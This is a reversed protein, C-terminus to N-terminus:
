LRLEVGAWLQDNRGFYGLPTAAGGEYLEAAAWVSWHEGPSYTARLSAAFSRQMLELVGRAALELRREWFTYALGGAVAHMWATHARAEAGAPELGVLRQGEQIRPVAFGVYSLQYVWDSAEAQTLGLAWQFTRRDLPSLSADYFTQRSNYTVDADLQVAGLLASGELSLLHSRPYHGRVLPAGAELSEELASVLAPDPPFSTLIARILNVLDQNVELRPLKQAMWIWSAGVEISPSLSVVGRLGLDGGLPRDTELLHPQLGDEISPHVTLPPNVGLGPQLLAQDQGVVDYRHPRSFPAYVATWKFPGLEGLARVALTPLRGDEPDMLLPSDRLDRPNLQDAPALAPHAGFALIQNGIRLDVRRTYLDLFAEGPEIESIVKPRNFSRQAVGRTWTRAEVRARLTDSLPADLALRARTHLETVNESLPSGVPSESVFDQSGHVRLRAEVRAGEQALAPASILTVLALVTRL